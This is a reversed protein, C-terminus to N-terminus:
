ETKPVARIMTLEELAPRYGLWANVALMPANDETNATYVSTVGKAAAKHLSVAKVLKGLGKGRHDRATGALSNFARDGNSNVFTLAVPTDGRYAVISCDRDTVPSGVALRLWDEYSFGPGRHHGPMDAGCARYLAYVPELDDVAALSKLTVGEPIRPVPPAQRPDAASI